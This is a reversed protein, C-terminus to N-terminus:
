TADEVNVLTLIAAPLVALITTSASTSALFVFAVSLLGSNEETLRPLNLNSNCPSSSFPLTAHYASLFVTSSLTTSVPVAVIDEAELLFVTRLFADSALIASNVILGALPAESISRSEILKLKYKL